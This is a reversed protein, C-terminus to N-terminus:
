GMYEELEKKLLNYYKDADVNFCAIDYCSLTLDELEDGFYEEIQRTAEQFNDAMVLGCRKEFKRDYCVTVKYLFTFM